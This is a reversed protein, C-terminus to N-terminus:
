SNRRTGRTRKNRRLRSPDDYGPGLVEVERDTLGAPHVRRPPAQGDYPGERGPPEAVNLTEPGVKLDPLSSIRVPLAIMKSKLSEAGGPGPIKAV